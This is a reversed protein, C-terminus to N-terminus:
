NKSKARVAGRRPAASKVAGRMGGPWVLARLTLPVPCRHCTARCCGPPCTRNQFAAFLGFPPGSGGLDIGSPDNQHGPRPRLSRPPAKTSGQPGLPIGPPARSAGKAACPPGQTGLPELVIGLPSWFPPLCEPSTELIRRQPADTHCFGCSVCTAFVTEQFSAAGQCAKPVEKELGIGKGTEGQCSTPAELHRRVNNSLLTATNVVRSRSTSPM